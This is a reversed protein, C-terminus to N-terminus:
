RAAAALAAFDEFRYGMERIECYLPGAHPRHAFDYVPAIRWRQPSLAFRAIVRQQSHYCDLAALKRAQEGPELPTEVIANAEWLFDGAHFEGNRAHYGTFERREPMPLGEADLSACAHQVAFATADHDPHGGEFPHTYVIAPQLARLRATIEAILRPLNRPAERDAVPLMELQAGSLGFVRMAAYLEAKRRAAYEERTAAGAQRWFRSEFPGGDTTHLIHCLASHRILEHACGLTEDDPHAVVILTEDQARSSSPPM